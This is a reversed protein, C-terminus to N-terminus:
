PMLGRPSPSGSPTLRGIELQLATRQEESRNAATTALGQRVLEPLALFERDGGSISIRFRGLLYRPRRYNQTLM